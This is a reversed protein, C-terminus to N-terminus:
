NRPQWSEIIKVFSPLADPQGNLALQAVCAEWLDTIAAHSEADEVPLRDMGPVANRSNKLAIQLLMMRRAGEGSWDLQYGQPAMYRHGCIWKVRKLQDAVFEVRPDRQPSRLMCFSIGIDRRRDIEIQGKPSSTEM